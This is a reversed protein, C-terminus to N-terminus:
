NNTKAKITINVGGQISGTIPVDPYYITPLLSLGDAFFPTDGGYGGIDVGILGTGISPSGPKPHYNGASYDIFLTNM